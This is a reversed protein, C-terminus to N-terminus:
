WRRLRTLDPMAPVRVGGVTGPDVGAQGADTQAGIGGVGEVRVRRRGRHDHGVVGEDAAGVHHRREDGAGVARDDAIRVGEAIRAPHRAVADRVPEARCQSGAPQDRRPAAVAWRPHRDHGRSPMSTARRGAPRTGARVPRPGVPPRHFMPRALPHRQVETVVFPVAAHDRSGASSSPGTGVPRSRSSRSSSATAAWSM